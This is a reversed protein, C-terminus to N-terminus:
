ASVFQGHRVISGGHNVQESYVLGCSVSRVWLARLANGAQENITQLVRAKMWVRRDTIPGAAPLWNRGGRVFHREFFGHLIQQSVGM